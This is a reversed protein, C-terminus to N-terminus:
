CLSNEAPRITLWDKAGTRALDGTAREHWRM